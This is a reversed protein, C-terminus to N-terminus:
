GMYVCDAGTYACGLREGNSGKAQDCDNASYKSCDVEEYEEEQNQYKIFILICFVLIIILISFLLFSFIM